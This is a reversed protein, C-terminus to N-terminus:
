LRITAKAKWAQFGVHCRLWPRPVAGADDVALVDVALMALRREPEM